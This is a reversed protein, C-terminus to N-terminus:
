FGFIIGAYVVLGVLLIGDVLMGGLLVLLRNDKDMLKMVKSYTM